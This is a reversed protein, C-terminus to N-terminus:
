AGEIVRAWDEIAAEHGPVLQIVFQDYGADRLTRLRDRLQPVTGTFTLDRILEANVFPEEEPRVGMLHQKHLRLYRADAPEYTGYLQRYADAAPRLAPPLELNPLSREVLGHFVTSVLPGAQAKARASDYPEGEALVCGLSFVSRYLTEPARGAARCAEAVAKAEEVAQATLTAFTMWGDAIKATMRRAKPGFASIHLPIRDSINILGLEPNLFRVKRQSGEFTWEVTDGALLGQVVRVYERLSALPMPGLGMTNRATFGTGVGFIIRGPALKNLSAFGNAACPAIRNTPVLVGTGLKITTTQAATLAMSVFVDPVLLQTDYFWAHTFGLAEARRATQWADLTSVLAIGFEV